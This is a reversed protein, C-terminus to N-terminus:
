RQRAFLTVIAGVTAAGIAVVAGDGFYKVAAYTSVAAAGFGVVAKISIPREYGVDGDRGITGNTDYM